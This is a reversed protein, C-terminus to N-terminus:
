VALDQFPEDLEESTPISNLPAVRSLEDGEPLEAPDAELREGNDLARNIAELRALIAPIEQRNTGELRPASRQVGDCDDNIEEITALLSTIQREREEAAMAEQQRLLAIREHCETLRRKYDAAAVHERQHAAVAETMSEILVALERAALSEDKLVRSREAQLRRAEEDIMVSAASPQGDPRLGGHECFIAEAATQAANIMGLVHRSDFCTLSMEPLHNM